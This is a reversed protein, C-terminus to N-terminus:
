QIRKQVMHKIVQSVVNQDIYVLLVSSYCYFGSSVQSSICNDIVTLQDAGTWQAAFKLMLFSM